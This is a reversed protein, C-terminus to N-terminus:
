HFYQPTNSWSHSGSPSTIRNQIYKIHRTVISKTNRSNKTVGQLLASVMLARLLAQFVRCLHKLRLSVFRVWIIFPLLNCFQLPLVYFHNYKVPLSKKKERKIKLHLELGTASYWVSTKPHGCRKKHTCSNKWQYLYVCRSMLLM